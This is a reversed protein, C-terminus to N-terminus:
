KAVIRVCIPEGYAKFNGSISNWLCAFNGGRIGINQLSRSGINQLNGSGADKQSEDEVQCSFAILTSNYPCGGSAVWSSDPPPNKVAYVKAGSFSELSPVPQTRTVLAIMAGLALLFAIAAIVAVPRVGNVTRLEPSKTWQVTGLDKWFKRGVETFGIWLWGFAAIVVPWGFGTIIDKYIDPMADEM